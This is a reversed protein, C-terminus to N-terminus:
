DCEFGNTEELLQRLHQVNRPECRPVSYQSWGYNKQAHARLAGLFDNNQLLEQIEYKGEGTGGPLCFFEITSAPIELKESLSKKSDRIEGEIMILDSDNFSPHNVSHPLFELLNEGERTKLGRLQRLEDWIMLPGKGETWAPELRDKEAIGGTAVCLTAKCNFDQIIHRAHEYFDQYGDDFTLIIKGKPSESEQGLLYRKVEEDSLHVPQLRRERAIYELQDHFDAPCNHYMLIPFLPTRQNNPFFKVM